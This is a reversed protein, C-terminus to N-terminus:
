HIQINKEEVGYQAQLERITIHLQLDDDANCVKTVVAKSQLGDLYKVSKMPIGGRVYERTVIIRQRLQRLM